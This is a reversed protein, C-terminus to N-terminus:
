TVYFNKSILSSKFFIPTTCKRKKLLIWYKLLLMKKLMKKKKSFNRSIYCRKFNNCYLFVFTIAYKFLQHIFFFVIRTQLTKKKKKIYWSILIRIVNTKIIWYDKSKKVFNRGNFNKWVFIYLNLLTFRLSLHMLYICKFQLKKKKSM